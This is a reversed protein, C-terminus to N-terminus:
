KVEMFTIEHNEVYEEGPRQMTVFIEDFAWTGVWQKGVESFYDGGGRGNGICTLLPLPAVCWVDGSKDWGPQCGSRKIYEEMDIYVRKTNNVLFCHEAWENVTGLNTPKVTTTRNGWAKKYCKLLTAEDKIFGDGLGVSEKAVEDAYDGMWAVRQPNDKLQEMVGDVLANTVWSHETLKSLNDFDHPTAVLAKRRKGILLARYYQGM